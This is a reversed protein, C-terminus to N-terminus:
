SAAGGGLMAASVRAILVAGKEEMDNVLAAVRKSLAFHLFMLPIAAILGLETTVLAVSIGGSLLKPDSNGFITIIDFTSIMGTVTGLLGLLPAVAAAIAVFTIGRELPTMQNMIAEDRCKEMSAIGTHGWEDLMHSLVRYVPVKGSTNGGLLTRAEDLRGERVLGFFRDLTGANGFRIRSLKLYRFLGLLFAIAGLGIIPWILAGGALIHEVIGKRGIFRKFVGGESFDVPFAAAGPTFAQEILKIASAPIDAQVAVLRRGGGAPQLFLHRGDKLRATALLGGVRLVDASVTQGDLLTVEGPRIGTADAYELESFLVDTITRVDGLSPFGASGAIAAIDDAMTPRLSTYAAKALRDRIAAASLRVAGELAKRGAGDERHRKELAKLETVQRNYRRQLGDVSAVLRERRERLDRLSAQLADRDRALEELAADAEEGSFRRLAEVERLMRAFDVAPEEEEALGNEESAVEEELVAATDSSASVAEVDEGESEAEPSAPATELAPPSMDGGEEAAWAPAVVICLVIAAAFCLGCFSRGALHM